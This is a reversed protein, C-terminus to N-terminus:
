CVLIREELIHALRMGCEHWSYEAEVLARGAAGLSSRLAPNQLLTIVSQAFEEPQDAVLLHKGPVVALGECGLSTSVIAKQMAFAELIKLRTGSGIQLPAIAVSAADLYPRVHPVTGTVTVGPLEALRAIEPPPNRGVIQWTAAPLQARIRPWCRQAFFLVGQINPYYDMTGTFIVQQPIVQEDDGPFFTDIDVGNPVVAISQEPLFKWLLDRERESTVLVLDAKRCRAIEEHKLLRSEQWNYWKRILAKEQLYTRELLEFEINHQDIITRMGNPLRYGATLSSEFLVADYRAESLLTDLSTQMEKHLYMSLTYSKGRAISMFQQQRKARSLPLPVIRVPHALDKLSSLSDFAAVETSDALALLSVDYLRSLAKLLHYNRASAGWAPRPLNASVMLLKM